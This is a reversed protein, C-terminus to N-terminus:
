REENRKGKRAAQLFLSVLSPRPTSADEVRRPSSFDPNTLRSVQVEIGVQAGLAMALAYGRQRYTRPLFRAAAMGPSELVPGGRFARLITQDLGLPGLERQVNAAVGERLFLYSVAVQTIGREALAQFLPALAARTDTIGPILPDVAAHVPVGAKRLRAMQRLRLSPSATLPELARQVQRDVTTLPITVRLWDRCALLGELIWPRILGRTMLWAEVGQTALVRVVDLTAQQIENSPPFPDTSPSLFVARPRPGSNLEEEVKRPLDELVLVAGEPSGPYARASCFGCHHFCGRALNLGLVGEGLAAPLSHLVNGPRPVFQIRPLSLLQSAALLEPHLLPLSTSSAV